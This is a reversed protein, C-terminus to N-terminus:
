CFLRSDLCVRVLRILNLMYVAPGYRAFVDLLHAKTTAQQSIPDTRDITVAPAPAMPNEQSWFLPISGRMVVCSSFQGHGQTRRSLFSVM